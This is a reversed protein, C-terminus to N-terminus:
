IFPQFIFSFNLIIAKAATAANVPLESGDLAATAVPVKRAFLCGGLKELAIERLSECVGVGTAQFLMPTRGCIMPMPFLPPSLGGYFVAINM